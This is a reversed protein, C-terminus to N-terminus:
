GIKTKRPFIRVPRAIKKRWGRFESLTRKTNPLNGTRHASGYSPDARRKINPPDAEFAPRVRVRARPDTRRIRRRIRGCHHASRSKAPTEHCPPFPFRELLRKGILNARSTSHIGRIGGFISVWFEAIRWFEPIGGALCLTELNVSWHRDEVGM